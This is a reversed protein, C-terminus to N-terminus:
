KHLSVKKKSELSWVFLTIIIFLTYIVVTWSASLEYEIASYPASSAGYAISNQLQVAGDLTAEVAPRLFDLPMVIWVISVIIIIYATVIVLPNVVVGVISIVGFTHSVLPATSLSAVFGIIITATLINIFKYRCKFYQFIPVGWALIATVAIFSLQFSIDYLYNPQAILMVFATAALINASIYTSTTAIAFQFASFMIAARIVSPSLGTSFAYLWILVIAIVNRWVHGHRIIPVWWLLLNILVFVVGVHLGSLALIHSTGSHSYAKRLQPTIQSKDGIVMTKCIALSEDSLKLRNLHEIAKQHPTSHTSQNRELIYRERTYISGIYNRNRMLKDFSSNSDFPKVVGSCIIKDSVYLHTATDTRLMIKKDASQWKDGDRWSTITAHTSHFNEYKSQNNDITIAYTTLKRLPINSQQHHLATIIVGFFIIAVVNYIASKFAFAMFCGVVFGAIAFWLPIQCSNALVIGAILPIIAKLMPLRGFKAFSLKM